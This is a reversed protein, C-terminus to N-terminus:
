SARPQHENPGCRQLNQETGVSALFFWRSCLKEPERKDEALGNRRASNKDAQSFHLWSLFYQKNCLHCTLKIPSFFPSFFFFCERCFGRPETVTIIVTCNLSDNGKSTDSWSALNLFPLLLHLTSLQFLFFFFFVFFIDRQKRVREKRGKDGEPHCPIIIILLLRGALPPAPCALLPQHAPLALLGASLWVTQDQGVAVPSVHLGFCCSTERHCIRRWCGVARSM